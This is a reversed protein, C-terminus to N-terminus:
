LHISVRSDRIVSVKERIIESFERNWHKPFDAFNGRNGAIEAHHHVFIVTFKCFNGTNERNLLSLANLPEINWRVIFGPV